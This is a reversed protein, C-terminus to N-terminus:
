TRAFTAFWFGDVWRRALASTMLAKARWSRSVCPRKGRIERRAVVDRREVQNLEFEYKSVAPHRLRSSCGGGTM